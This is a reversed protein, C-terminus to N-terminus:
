SAEDSKLWKYECEGKNTDHEYKNSTRKTAGNHIAWIEVGYRM